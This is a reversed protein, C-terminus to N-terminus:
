STLRAWDRLIRRAANHGAAGTLHGGPHTGPGTLYLRPVPTSYSGCDPVPRNTFLQDLALEGGMVHGGSLAFRKELEVPTLIERGVVREAFGPALEELRAQVLDGLVSRQTSWDGDALTHPAHQVWASCVHKGDPALSPDLVTPFVVDMFPRESIRGYKADDFARELDDLRAGVQVHGRLDVEGGKFTPLSDLAFHVKATSGDRRFASMRKRLTPGILTPEVMDLLTTHSDAGSLVVSADLERGGVLRVGRAGNEGDLIAEVHEGLLFVVGRRKAALELAASIAGMGGKPIGGRRLTGGFSSAEWLLLNTVGGPSRPGFRSGLLAPLAITSRLVDSKFWDETFDYLCQPAIRLLELMDAEGLRRFRFAQWAPAILEGLSPRRFPLPQLTLLPRLFATLRELLASVREYGRGDQTSLAACAARAGDRDAPLHFPAGDDRLTTVGHDAPLLELGHSELDLGRVVQPLLGGTAHQVTSAKFGPHFEETVARGGVVQRREVVLVTRGAKALTTAAVLSDVGSGIVLVDPDKM